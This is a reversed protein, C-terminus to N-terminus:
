RRLLVARSRRIEPHDIIEFGASKTIQVIEEFERQKVHGSPEAILLLAGKKMAAFIESLLRDKDPVEHLLAFALAFDIKGTLDDLPLHDKACVRADIRETLGARSARKILGSIMKEQLDVCVVKGGNEVMEAMPLSYFGMGCGVDLVTMEKRVYPTLIEKPDQFLKRLPSALLRGLWWPCVMHAM